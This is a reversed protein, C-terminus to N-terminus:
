DVYNQDMMNEQLLTPMLFSETVNGTLKNLRVVASLDIIWCLFTILGIEEMSCESMIM